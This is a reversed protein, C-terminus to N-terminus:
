KKANEIKPKAAFQKLADPIKDYTRTSSPVIAKQGNKEMISLGTKGLMFKLFEVALKKHPANKPITSGYVMPAGFKEIYEGPKKGTIKVSVTRYLDAFDPNGLNIEDPLDIFKLRHQQAVSRYLFIYDIVGTELLALLDTEKPRMYKEDKALLKDALWKKIYYKEALKVTM